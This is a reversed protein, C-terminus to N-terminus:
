GGHAARFLRKNLLSNDRTVKEYGFLIIIYRDLLVNNVSEPEVRVERDTLNGSPM